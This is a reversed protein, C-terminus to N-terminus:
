EGRREALCDVVALLWVHHAMEVINYSDSDVWFNLDGLSRLPNTSAFGTFTVLGLGIERAKKAANLMNPSRGSSSVLILVDGPDAYFDLARAIWQEFGYDNAFCTILDVENFTIARVGGVKTLDVAVHAAM